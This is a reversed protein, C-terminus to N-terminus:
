VDLLLGCCFLAIGACITLALLPERQELTVSSALHIVLAFMDSSEQKTQADCFDSAAVSAWAGNSQRVDERVHSENKKGCAGGGPACGHQLIGSTQFLLSLRSVPFKHTM